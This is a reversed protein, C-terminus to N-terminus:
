RPATRQQPWHRLIRPRVRFYDVVLETVSTVHKPVGYSTSRGSALWETIRADYEIRSAKTGHPGLYHRRGNIEVIAQGSAKHKRYKPVSQNLRPM